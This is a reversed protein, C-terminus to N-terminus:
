KKSALWDLYGQIAIAGNTIVKIRATGDIRIGTQVSSKTHVAIVQGQEDFIPSGLMGNGTPAEYLLNYEGDKISLNNTIKGDTFRYEQQSQGTPFPFGSVYIKQGSSASSDKAMPAIEYDVPSSFKILALNMPLVEVSTITHRNDDTTHLVYQRRDGQVLKSATLVSYDRRQKGVILGSGNQQADQINEIRVTVEKATQAIERTTVNALLPASATVLPLLFPFIVSM